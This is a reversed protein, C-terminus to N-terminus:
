RIQIGIVNYKTGDPLTLILQGNELTKRARQDTQLDEIGEATGKCTAKIKLNKIEWTPSNSADSAVKYKFAFVTNAGVVNEPVNVTTSVYSWNTGTPYTPITLQTWESSAVSGQFNSTVWLTQENTLNSTNGYGITHQFSLSIDKSTALNYEPTFLWDEGGKDQCKAGYSANYQWYWTGSVSESTMPSFSTGGTPVLTVDIDECETPKVPATLNLAVVYADHDSYSYAANDDGYEGCPACIHFVGAGTIQEAMSANALAHDILSGVNDYCHSYALADYKLLQEAYGLGILTDVPDEGVPCNLDGVILIDPDSAYSALGQLLQRSNIKRKENGADETNDKAKFHNMSLTFRAGTELEEFVQIRLTNKFYNASTAAHNTGYPKVKDSRYIFGSKINNDYTADWEEVADDTVVVFPTGEVRGNLSDAILALAEPQAEVECFALIDPNIIMAANVLKHTKEAVSNAYKGRGANYNVYYNKLNQAFIKLRGDGVEPVPVPSAIGGGACTSVINVNKLQWTGTPSGNNYTFAFVTNSGVYDLPVNISPVVYTWNSNTGYTPIDLQQWTSAAYSGKYDKTVWLTYDTQVNEGDGFKHSHQFSITVSEAGTFDLAPTFLHAKYGTDKGKNYATGYGCSYTSHWSWCQSDDTTCDGFGTTLYTENVPTCTAYALSAVMCGLAAIILKIHKM